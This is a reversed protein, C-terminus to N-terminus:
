LGTAVNGMTVTNVCETVVVLEVTEGERRGEKVKVLIGVGEGGWGREGEGAM